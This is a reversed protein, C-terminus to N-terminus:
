RRGRDPKTVYSFYPIKERFWPLSDTTIGTCGDVTLSLIKEMHQRKPESINEETQKLGQTASTIRTSVIRTLVSPDIQSSFSLDMHTLAPCLQDPSALAELIPTVISGSLHKLTLSSVSPNSTLVQLVEPVPLHACADFTITRLQSTNSELLCEVAFKSQLCSRVSIVELSPLRIHKFLQTTGYCYDLYTLHSFTLPPGSLDRVPSFPSIVVLSRLSLNQALLRFLDSVWREGFRLVELTVLSHVQLQDLFVHVAGDIILNRLNDGLQSVFAERSDLLKDRIVLTELQPIIHLAGRKELQDLIDIDELECARLCSWQVGELKELSWDVQDSLTRRLCLERIRGKSRQIWLTSKRNPRKNSLVLTSWLTPDELAVRRWHRCVQSVKINLVADEEVMYHFIASLLENPLMGVHCNLRKRSELVRSQLDVLTALHKDNSRNVRQLALEVMKSAEDFKRISLFLRAARFYCQWRNPALRISEKADLLAERFRSNKAHVAARSDYIAYQDRGGNELAYNLLRLCEGYKSQKFYSVAKKFPEQWEM